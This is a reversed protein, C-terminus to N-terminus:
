QGLPGGDPALDWRPPLKATARREDPGAADLYWALAVDVASGLARAAEDLDPVSWSAREVTHQNHDPRCWCAVGLKAHVEFPGEVDAEVTVTLDLWDAGSSFTVTSDVCRLHRGDVLTWGCWSSHARDQTWGLEPRTRCDALRARQLQAARRAAESATPRGLWALDAHDPPEQLAGALHEWGHKSPASDDLTAAM